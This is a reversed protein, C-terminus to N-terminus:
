GGPSAAIERQALVVSADHSVASLVHVQSGDARWCGPVAKGDIAVALLGDGADPATQEALWQSIVEDHLEADFDQM